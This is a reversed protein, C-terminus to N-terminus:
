ISHRRNEEGSGSRNDSVSRNSLAELDLMMQQARRILANHREIMRAQRGSIDFSQTTTRRYGARQRSNEFAIDYDSISGSERPRDPYECYMARLRFVQRGPRSPGFNTSDFPLPRSSEDSDNNPNPIDVYTSRRFRFLRRLITCIPLCQAM